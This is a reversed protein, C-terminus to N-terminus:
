HKDVLTLSFDISKGTTSGGINDIDEGDYRVTSCLLSGEIDDYVFSLKTPDFVSTLEIDGEFLTGKEGAQGYFVVTGDPQDNIYYEKSEEVLIDSEELVIPDLNHSWVENEENDFVTINNYDSMEIGCEHVIDCCEYWEGPPFPMMDEPVEFTNEDDTAYEELDIDNEEFYDYIERSVTGLVSESGYGWLEIRYTCPTFKLIELLERQEEISPETDITM